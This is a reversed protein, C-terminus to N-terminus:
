KQKLNEAQEKTVAPKGVTRRPKEPTGPADDQENLGFLYLVTEPNTYLDSDVFYVLETGAPRNKVQYELYKNFVKPCCMQIAEVIINNMDADTKFARGEFLHSKISWGTVNDPDYKQGITDVLLRLHFRATIGNKPAKSRQKLIEPLFNPKDIVYENKGLETPAEKVTVFKAM